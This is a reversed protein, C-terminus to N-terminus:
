KLCPPKNENERTLYIDIALVPSGWGLGVIMQNTSPAEEASYCCRERITALLTNYFKCVDVGKPLFDERLLKENDGYIRISSQGESM